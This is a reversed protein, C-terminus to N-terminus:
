LILYLNKVFFNVFYPVDQWGPHLKKHLESLFEKKLLGHLDNGMGNHTKRGGWGQRYQIYVYCLVSIVFFVFNEEYILFNLLSRPQLTM